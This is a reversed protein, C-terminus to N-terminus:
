KVVKRAELPLRETERGEQRGRRVTYLYHYFRSSETSFDRFGMKKQARDKQKINKERKSELDNKKLTTFKKNTPKKISARDKNPKNM